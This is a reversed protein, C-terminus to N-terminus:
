DCISGAVDKTANRVVPELRRWCDDVAIGSVRAKYYSMAGFESSVAKTNNFM